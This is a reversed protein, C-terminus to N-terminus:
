AVVKCAWNIANSLRTSQSAMYSINVTYQPIAQVYARMYQAALVAFDEWIPNGSERGLHEIDNAYTDMVPGVADMVSRQESTWEM